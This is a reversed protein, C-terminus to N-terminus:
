VKGVQSTYGKYRSDLLFSIISPYLLFWAVNARLQMSFFESPIIDTHSLILTLFTYFLYFCSYLLLFSYRFVGYFYKHIYFSIMQVIIFHFPNLVDAQSHMGKSACEQVTFIISHLLSIQFIQYIFQIAEQFGVVINDIRSLTSRLDFRIVSSVLQYM